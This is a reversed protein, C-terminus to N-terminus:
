LKRRVRIETFILSVTFVNFGDSYCHIGDFTLDVEKNAGFDMKGGSYYKGNFDTAHWDAFWWDGLFGQHVIRLLTVIMIQILLPFNRGTITSWHM